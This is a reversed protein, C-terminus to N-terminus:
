MHALNVGFLQEFVRDFDVAGADTFDNVGESGISQSLQAIHGHGMETECLQQSSTKWKTYLEPRFADAFRECLSRMHESVWDTLKGAYHWRREIESLAIVCTNMRTVINEREAIQDRLSDSLDGSTAPVAASDHRFELGLHLIAFTTWIPYLHESTIPVQPGSSHWHLVGDLVDAIAFCDMLSLSLAEEQEPPPKRHRPLLPRRILLRV